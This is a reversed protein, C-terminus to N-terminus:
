KEGRRQEVLVNCKGCCRNHSEGYKSGSKYKSTFGRPNHGGGTLTKKCICCHMRWADASLDRLQVGHIEPNKAGGGGSSGGGGGRKRKKEPEDDDWSLSRAGPQRSDYRSRKAWPDGTEPNKAGGGGGALPSVASVTSIVIKTAGPFLRTFVKLAAKQSVRDEPGIQMVPLNAMNDVIFMNGKVESLACAHKHKDGDSDLLSMIVIYHGSRLQLVKLPNSQYDGDSVIQFGRKTAVPAVDELSTDGVAPMVARAEAESVKSGQNRM